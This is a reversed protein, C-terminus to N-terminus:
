TQETTFVVQSGGTLEEKVDGLSGYESPARTGLREAVTFENEGLQIWTGSQVVHRFVVNLAARRVDVAAPAFSPSQM